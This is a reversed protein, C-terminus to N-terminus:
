AYRALLDTDDTTVEAVPTGLSRQLRIRHLRDLDTAVYTRRGGGTRAQELLGLGEYDLAAHAPHPRHPDRGGRHHARHAHSSALVQRPTLLLGEGEKVLDNM